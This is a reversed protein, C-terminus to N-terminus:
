IVEFKYKTVSDYRDNARLVPSLFNPTNVANPCYQSELCFGGLDKYIAGRKGKKNGISNGTYFQVAPCDTYARMRIGSEKSVAVAMERIGEGKRLVFNHDYGGTYRLQDFDVHLDQGIRKEETFDFPTGRVATIEGTPISASDAVPTYMDAYIKLLHDEVTTQSDAGNLNFYSHNTMNLVTDQDCTGQYHIIVCNDDTLSYTVYIKLCGPFGQDKDPSVLFLTIEQDTVNSVTWMRKDYTNPGSHLNNNNENPTLRYTIGNLQFRAHATRNGCRGVVAGFCGSGTRYDNVNDYGLVIDRLMGKQDPMYVKVLLSGFDSVSISAGSKNKLTYLCAKSGDPLIGFSEKLM